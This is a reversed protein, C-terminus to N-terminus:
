LYCAIPKCIHFHNMNYIFVKEASSQKIAPNRKREDRICSFGSFSSLPILVWRLYQEQHSPLMGPEPLLFESVLNRAGKKLGLILNRLIEIAYKDRQDHLIWRLFYFDAGKVPQPAFFDHPMYEIRSAVEAPPSAMAIVPPLDQVVFKIGPVKM